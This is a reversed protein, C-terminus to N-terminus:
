ETGGLQVVLLTCLPASGQSCPRILLLFLKGGKRYLMSFFWTQCCAFMRAHHFVTPDLPVCGCWARTRFHTPQAFSGDMGCSKQQALCRCVLPCQPSNLYLDQLPLWQFEEVFGGWFCFLGSSRRKCVLEM